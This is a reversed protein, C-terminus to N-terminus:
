TVPDPFVLTANLFTLFSRNKKDDQDQWEDKSVKSTSADHQRSFISDVCFAKHGETKAQLLQKLAKQQQKATTAVRQSKTARGSALPLAPRQGWPPLGTPGGSTTLGACAGSGPQSATHGVVPVAAM